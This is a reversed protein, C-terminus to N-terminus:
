HAGVPTVARSVEGAPDLSCNTPEEGARCGGRLAGNATAPVRLFEALKPPPGELLTLAGIHMHTNPKEQALFGADIASLRDLHRAPSM